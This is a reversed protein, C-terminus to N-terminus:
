RLRRRKPTEELIVRRGLMIHTPTQLKDALAQGVLLATYAQKTFLELRDGDTDATVSYALGESVPPLQKAEVLVQDRLPKKAPLRLAITRKKVM